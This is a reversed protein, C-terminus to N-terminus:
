PLCEIEGQHLADAARSARAIERTVIEHNRYYLPGGRERPKAFRMATKRRVGVRIPDRYQPKNQEFWDILQDLKARVTRKTATM